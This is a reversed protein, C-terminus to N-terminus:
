SVQVGRRAGPPRIRVRRDLVLEADERDAASATVAYPADRLLLSARWQGDASQSPAWRFVESRGDSSRTAVRSDGHLKDFYRLAARQGTIQSYTVSVARGEVAQECTWMVPRNYEPHQELEDVCDLRDPRFSPLVWALGDTGRPKPCESRSAAGEGNWCFVEAAADDTDEIEAWLMQGGVTGAVVLGALLPVVVLATRRAGPRDTARPADDPVLPDTGDDGAPPPATQDTPTSM